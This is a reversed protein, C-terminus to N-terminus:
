SFLHELDGRTLNKIMDNSGSLVSSVMEQKINEQRERLKRLAEDAEDVSKVGAKELKDNLQQRKNQLDSELKM